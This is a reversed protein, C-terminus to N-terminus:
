EMTCRCPNRFYNQFLKIECTAVTNIVGECHAPFYIVYVRLRTARALRCSTARGRCGNTAAFIQLFSIYMSLYVSLCILVSNCHIVAALLFLPAIVPISAICWRIYILSWKNSKNHIKKYLLSYLLDVVFGCCISYISNSKYGSIYWAGPFVAYDFLHSKNWKLTLLHSTVFCIYQLLWSKM